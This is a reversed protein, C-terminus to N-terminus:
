TIFAYATGLGGLAGGAVLLPWAARRFEMPIFSFVLPGAVFMFIPAWWSAVFFGALLMGGSGLSAAMGLLSLWNPMGVPSTKHYQLAAISLLLCSLAYLAPM